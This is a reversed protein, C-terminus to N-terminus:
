RGDGTELLEPFSRYWNPFHELVISRWDMPFPLEDTEWYHIEYAMYILSMSNKSTQCFVILTHDDTSEYMILMAAKTAHPKAKKAQKPTFRTLKDIVVFGGRYTIDLMNLYRNLGNRTVIGLTYTNEMRM